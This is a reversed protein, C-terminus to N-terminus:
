SEKSFFNEFTTNGYQGRTLEIMKRITYADKKDKDPLITEVFNRTGFSCAGTIIRYCEVADEFSLTSDLTLSEYESKDRNCIKYVLDKKAEQITYGHAYKGHGDTVLYFVKSSAIKKVEWVNGHHSIKEAFVGDACIFKSDSWIKQVIDADFKKNVKSTDTIGTGRLDLYGGVTLGEPLSTIGTGRLDLHAGVTLGEPLSTIGTGRLNLPSNKIQEESKRIFKCFESMTIKKEM